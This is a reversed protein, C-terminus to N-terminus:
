AGLWNSGPDRGQSNNGRGSSQAGYERVAWGHRLADRVRGQVGGWIRVRVRGKLRSGVGIGALVNRLGHSAEPGMGRPIAGGYDTDDVSFDEVNSQSGGPPSLVKM